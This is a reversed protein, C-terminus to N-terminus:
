LLICILGGSGENVIRELTDSLKERADEPMNELKANLGENILDHMSKGFINSQWIREPEDEFEGLMTRIMERSQEESGVTPNLETEINARIMHISPARARLKIGYGNPAKVIEPEDFSLDEMNPTVIGYGTKEVSELAPALKDYKKKIDAFERMCGFLEADNKISCGTMQELVDYYLGKKMEINVRGTGTGLDLNTVKASEIYANDALSSFADSVNGVKTVSQANEIISNRIATVIIHNDDLGRVWEPVDIGISKVPFESLVLEMIAKIDDGNLETCNVLAVPAQYKEELELALARSADSEPTGSNLIIVFPTGVKKVEAIVRKEADVYSARPIEGITGDTTVVCGITSHDHIVKRTGLEAAEGFPMPESQWPTNVLRREGDETDGIADSIMYGVCDAMRVNFSVNDNLTVRASEKPVFKPETTMVTKGRASQPLEDIARAREFENEINPIVLTEMFKKIFTSKGTRVPGVVGIYIDKNTRRAIDQYISM